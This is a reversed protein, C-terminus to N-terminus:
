NFELRRLILPTSATAVRYGRLWRLALILGLLAGFLSAAEGHAGGLAEGLLAGALLALIPALYAAMAAALLGQESIGVLVRDGVAAQIQNLATLEVARRGLYRELLSTGCAGQVTCTGCASRRETRVQAYDGSLAVVTGREEIM